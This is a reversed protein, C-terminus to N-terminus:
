RQLGDIWAAIATEEDPTFYAIGQHMGPTNDLNDKTVLVNMAGPAMKYKDILTSFSTLIPQTGVHCAKCEAILPEVTSRFSAENPDPAADPTEIPVEGVGCAALLVLLAVKAPSFMTLSVMCIDAGVPPTPTEGPYAAPGALRGGLIPPFDQGHDWFVSSIGPM